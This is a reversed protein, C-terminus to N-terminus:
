QREQGTGTMAFGALDVTVGETTIVLCDGTAHLNDVLKYSGPQDISQCKKIKTIAQQQEDQGLAGAVRALIPVGLVLMIVMLATPRRM